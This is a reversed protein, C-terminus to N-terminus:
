CLRLDAAGLPAFHRDVVNSTVDALRAPLWRPRRDKDIVASRIGEILDPHDLFRCSVRYDQVLCEELTTMSRAERLARLTVKLATPSGADLAEAAAAADREPRTHLRARIEEVTDASYCTDIWPRNTTLTGGPSAGCTQLDAAAVVEAPDASQFAAILSPLRDSPVVHDALGCLLADQPGIRASTLALHTGLEGPARALLLAGGVDPALGIAVEPMALVSRETVVRIGSHATLGIGGGMVIGDMVSVVPLPYRAIRADLEYEERWLTRAVEPDSCAADHVVKIDGGACFGREGAGDLVVVEVRPDNRWAELAGSITRIMTLNLANLAAPRNLTIRGLRGERRCLVPSSEGARARSEMIMM